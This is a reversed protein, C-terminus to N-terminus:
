LKNWAVKAAGFTNHGIDYTKLDRSERIPQNPAKDAIWADALAVILDVQDKKVADMELDKLLSFQEITIGDPLVWYDDKNLVPRVLPNMRVVRGNSEPVGNKPLKQGLAIHARFTAADPPDDLITTALKKLDHLLTSNEPAHILEGPYASRGDPPISVSGTGISLACVTVAKHGNALAEIVAALIPNNNGGVGGDWYARDGFRAPEDFYNIPANTSAHVAEALTPDAHGIKGKDDPGKALSDTKTRFYVARVRDFDFSTILFDPANEGIKGKLKSLKIDGYKKFLHRLGVLKASARYRPGIGFWRNPELMEWAPLDVFIKRRQSEDMFFDEMESLKMNEALCAAVISGGSNAAVLDFDKLVEHGSVDEDDFIKQLAKVQILAWAGGGDLSLIRFKNESM